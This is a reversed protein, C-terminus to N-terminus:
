LGAACEEDWAEQPSYDSMPVASYTDWAATARKSDSM